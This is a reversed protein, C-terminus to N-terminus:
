LTRPHANPESDSSEYEIFPPSSRTAHNLIGFRANVIHPRFSPRIFRYVGGAPGTANFGEYSGPMPRLPAGNSATSSSRSVVATTPMYYDDAPNFTNILPRPEDFGMLRRQGNVIRAIITGERIQLSRQAHMVFSREERLVELAREVEPRTPGSVFENSPQGEILGMLYSVPATLYTQRDPFIIGATGDHILPPPSPSHSPPTLLTQRARDREEAELRQEDVENQELIRRVEEEHRERENVERVYEDVQENAEDLAREEDTTWPVRRDESVDSETSPSPTTQTSADVLTPTHSVITLSTAQDSSSM